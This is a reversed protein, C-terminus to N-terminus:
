KSPQLGEKYQNIRSSRILNLGVTGDQFGGASLSHLNSDQVRRWKKETVVVEGHLNTGIAGPL